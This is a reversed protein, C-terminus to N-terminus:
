ALNKFKMLLFMKSSSFNLNRECCKKFKVPTGNEKKKGCPCPDNRGPKVIRNKIEPKLKSEMERLLNIVGQMHCDKYAKDTLACPCLALPDIRDVKLEYDLFANVGHLQGEPWYGYRELHWQRGLFVAIYEVVNKIRTEGVFDLSSDLRNGYCLTKKDDNLHPCKKDALVGNVDIVKPFIIPYNRPCEIRVELSYLRTGGERNCSINGVWAVNEGAKNEITLHPFAAQMLEIEEALREPYLEYWQKGNNDGLDRLISETPTM